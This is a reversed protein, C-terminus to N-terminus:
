VCRLQRDAAVTHIHCKALRVKIVDLPNGILIGVAGSVYGAWFDASMDFRAKSRKLCITSYALGAQVHCRM